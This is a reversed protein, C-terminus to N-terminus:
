GGVGANVAVAEARTDGAAPAHTARRRSHAISISLILVPILGCVVIALAASASDELREESALEYARVALTNFNFPRLVLTAPLEKMVDVFVLLAATLLSGRLMPVHVRWLVQNASCGLIRGTDDMSRTIKGLGAELTQLSVAMFRVMYAFMLTFLTGSFILGPSVAFSAQLWDNLSNDLWAFPIIVGVAIVTGPIAYGMGVLRNAVVVARRPNVRRTYAILLALNVALIAAGAALAISNFMLHFFSVDLMADATQLAWVLLQTSPIMFGLLLPVACISVAAVALRGRLVRVRIPRSRSDVQTYRAKHRSWRELLILSLVFALLVASLQAAASEDGLGFWTRFIGSTFVQVSFYDVTGFDALTEMLALSLGAIIAPRAAPLSVRFFSQLGTCGLTRAADISSASQELFAARTLLYVYPYLVLSLMCVAGGLSRIHPFWYDGKGWEFYTRLASQVPGAYDLMGTYTYAIIYAPIALPLLLAWEFFGVGPFRCNVTLWATSIGIALTAIAVGLMLLLSNVIYNALVTHLLHNWIEGTPHFVSVVIVLVPLSLIGALTITLVTGIDVRRALVVRHLM